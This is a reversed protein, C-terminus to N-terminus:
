LPQNFKVEELFRKINPYNRTAKLEAANYKDFSKYAEYAEVAGAGWPAGHRQLNAIGLIVLGLWNDEILMKTRRNAQKFEPTNQMASLSEPMSKLIKESKSISDIRNRYNYVPESIVSILPNHLYARFMFVDDEHSNIGVPFIINHKDLLDKLYFRGRIGGGTYFLDSHAEKGYFPSLLQLKDLHRNAFKNEEAVELAAQEGRSKRVWERDYVDYFGTLVIDSKDKKIVKIIKKFADPELWDDSDVFTIYKNKAIKLGANRAASVGKNEQSIIHMNSHKGAYQQLIELSKDISGDNVAIVEFSGSQAFVSNLCKELYKDANYVPIIVSVTIRNQIWIYLSLLCVLFIFIITLRKKM